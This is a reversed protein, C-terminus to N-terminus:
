ASEEKYKACDWHVEKNTNGHKSAKTVRLITTYDGPRFPEGCLPCMDGLSPSLDSKPGYKFV